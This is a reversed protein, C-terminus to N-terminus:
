EHKSGIPIGRNRPLLPYWELPIFVMCFYLWLIVAVHPLTVLVIWGVTLGGPNRSPLALNNKTWWVVLPVARYINAVITYPFTVSYHGTTSIICELIIQAQIVFLHSALLDKAEVPLEQRPFHGDSYFYMVVWPAVVTFVLQCQELFMFKRVFKKPWMPQPVMDRGQVMFVLILTFMAILCAVFDRKPIMDSCKTVLTAELAVFVGLVIRGFLPSNDSSRTSSVARGM